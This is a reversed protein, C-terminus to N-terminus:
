DHFCVGTLDNSKMQFNTCVLTRYLNFNKGKGSGCLSLGPRYWCSNSFDLLVGPGDGPNQLLLTWLGFPPSCKWICCQIYAVAPLGFIFHPACIKFSSKSVVPGSAPSPGIVSGCVDLRCVGTCGLLGRM